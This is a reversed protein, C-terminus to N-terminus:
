RAFTALSERVVAAGQRRGAAVASRRPSSPTRSRPTSPGGPPLRPLNVTSRPPRMQRHPPNAAPIFLVLDLAFAERVQEAIALHAIHIPDFTGGMIGIRSVPQLADDM